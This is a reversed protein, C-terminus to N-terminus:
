QMLFGRIKNCVQLKLHDIDPLVEEIAQSKPMKDSRINCCVKDFVALNELYFMNIDNHILDELLQPSVLINGLFDNLDKELERRNNLGVTYNKSKEQLINVDESIKGLKGQFGDVINEIRGLITSSTQLQKYLEAVDQNVTLYDTICQSELTKLDQNVKDTYERLDLENGEAIESILGYSEKQSNPEM